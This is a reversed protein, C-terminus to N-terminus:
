DNVADTCRFDAMTPEYGTPEYPAWDNMRAYFDAASESFEMHGCLPCIEDGYGMHEMTTDCNDCIMINRGRNILTSMMGWNTTYDVAHVQM